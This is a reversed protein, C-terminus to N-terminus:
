ETGGSYTPRVTNTSSPSCCTVTRAPSRITASCGRAGLGPEQITCRSCTAARQFSHRGGPFSAGGAQGGQCSVKASPTAVVGSEAYSCAIARPSPAGHTGGVFRFRTRRQLRQPERHREGVQILHALLRRRFPPAVAM